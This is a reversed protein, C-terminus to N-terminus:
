ILWPFYTYRNTINGSFSSARQIIRSPQTYYRLDIVHSLMAVRQGVVPADLYLTGLKYDDLTDMGELYEAEYLPENGRRNTILFCATYTGIERIRPLRYINEIAFRPALREMIRSTTRQYIETLASQKNNNFINETQYNTNFMDLDSLHRIEGRASLLRHIECLSTVYLSDTDTIYEM